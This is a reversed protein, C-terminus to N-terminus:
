RPSTLGPGNEGLRNKLFGLVELSFYSPPEIAFVPRTRLLALDVGPWGAGDASKGVVAYASARNFYLQNSLKFDETGFRLVPLYVDPNLFRLISNSEMIVFERDALLRNLEPMALDLQGVRTRVWYVQEAGAKLFRSTDSGSDPDMERTIAFPCDPQDVVCGCDHGNASCVGHGYQTIKLATWRFERSAAIIGAALSTKGVSRSHGGIVVLKM